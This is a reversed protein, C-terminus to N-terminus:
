IQIFFRNQTNSASESVKLESESIWGLNGHPGYPVKLPFNGSKLTDNFNQSRNLLDLTGRKFAVLVPFSKLWKKLTVLTM